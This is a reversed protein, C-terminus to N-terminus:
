QIQFLRSAPSELPFSYPRVSFNVPEIINYYMTKLTDHDDFPQQRM